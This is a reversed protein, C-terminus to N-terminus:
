GRKSVLADFQANAIGVLKMYDVETIYISSDEASWFLRYESGILIVLSIDNTNVLGISLLVLM